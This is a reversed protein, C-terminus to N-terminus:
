GAALHFRAVVANLRGAQDRLSEAAAASQQVLAANQHTMRDLDGMAANVQSIGQSQGSTAHSIQDIMGHVRQVSSVIEGMTTGAEQVLRSGTSVKEASSQILQKIERAAGASRQALSRVESAVVAFGRGQEGARAAEVAANLALINTQFAISDITGIIEAIRRSDAHIDDMTRVVEAVATGGRQAVQSASEALSSAHRASDASQQVSLTVQQVASVTQQLNSATQDTRGSLDSNGSAVEGSASHIGQSVQRVENVLSGLGAQMHALARLLEAAEDSGTAVIPRTLDGEAIALAAARAQDIPGLISRSNLLTLPVVVVVVLGLVGVFALLTHSMAQAFGARTENVEHDIVLKLGVVAKELRVLPESARGFMRDAARATDFAGAEIQRIVPLSADAYAQADKLAARAIENDADEEGEILAKLQAELAQLQSAWAAHHQRAEDPQGHALVMAKELRQLQRLALELAAINRVEKISHHMFEHNLASLRSGGWLGTLGVLAFLGIVMAIAGQMRLRISFRRMLPMAGAQSPSPNM